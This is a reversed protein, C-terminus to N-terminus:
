CRNYLDLTDQRLRSIGLIQLVWCLNLCLITTSSLLCGRCFFRSCLCTIKAMKKHNRGLALCERKTAGAARASKGNIPGIELPQCPTSQRTALNPKAQTIRATTLAVDLCRGLVHVCNGRQTSIKPTTTQTKKKKNSSTRQHNQAGGGGIQRQTTVLVIANSNTEQQMIGQMPPSMDMRLMARCVINELSLRKRTWNDFASYHYTGGCEIPVFQRSLGREQAQILVNSVSDGNIYPAAGTNYITRITFLPTGFFGDITTQVTRLSTHHTSFQHSM